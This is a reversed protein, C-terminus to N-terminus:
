ESDSSDTDDYREEKNYLRILTEGYDAMADLISKWNNDVWEKQEGTSNRYVKDMSDMLRGYCLRTEALEKTITTLNNM